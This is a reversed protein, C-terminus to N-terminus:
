PVSGGLFICLAQPAETRKANRCAVALIVGLKGLIERDLDDPNFAANPDFDFVVPDTQGTLWINFTTM